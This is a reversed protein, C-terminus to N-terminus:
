GAPLAESGALAVAPAYTRGAEDSRWTAAVIPVTADVLVTAEAALAEGIGVRVQGGPDIEYADPTGEPWPAGLLSLRVTAITTAGPNAVVLSARDAPGTLRVMWDRAGAGVAPLVSMGELGRAVAGEDVAHVPRTVLSAALREGDLSRVELGYGGVGELRGSALDVVQRQGARLTLLWPEVQHGALEPRVVVEVEATDEGPNTVVVSSALGVGTPVDPLFLRAASEPTGPTLALAAHGGAGEEGEEPGGGGSLQLRAVVVQGVRADVTASVVESDPIQDNLDFVSLTRGAVVVGRTELTERRGLDGIFGLDAVAPARFPNYVLLSARNDPGATTAWPVHWTSSTSTTCPTEELGAHHGSGGGGDTVRGTIRQDVLVRGGPVEVTVGAWLAGPVFPGPRVELDAGPELRFAREVEAGVDGIVTVRGDTAEDSISTLTVVRGGVGEAEVTPGLCFWLDASDATTSVASHVAPRQTARGAGTRDAGFLAAGVGLAVLVVVAPWRVANMTAAPPKM